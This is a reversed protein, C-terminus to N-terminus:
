VSGFVDHCFVFTSPNGAECLALKRLVCINLSCIQKTKTKQREDGKLSEELVLHEPCLETCQELAPSIFKQLCYSSSKEM